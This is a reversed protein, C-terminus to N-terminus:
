AFYFLLPVLPFLLPGAHPEMFTCVIDGERSPDAWCAEDM